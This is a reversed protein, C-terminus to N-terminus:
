RYLEQLPQFDQLRSAAESVGYFYDGFIHALQQSGKWLRAGLSSCAKGCFLRFTDVRTLTYLTELTLLGCSPISSCALDSSSPKSRQGSDESHLRSNPAAIDLGLLHLSPAKSSLCAIDCTIQGVHFAEDPM